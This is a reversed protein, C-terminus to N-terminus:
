VERFCEECYFATNYIGRSVNFYTNGEFISEGCNDCRSIFKKGESEVPLSLWYQLTEECNKTEGMCVPAQRDLFRALQPLSLSMMHEYNTM